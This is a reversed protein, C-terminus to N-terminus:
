RVFRKGKKNIKRLCDWYGIEYGIALLLISILILM